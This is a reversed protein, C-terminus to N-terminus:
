PASAPILKVEVTQSSGEAVHVLKGQQEYESLVAPDFYSFPEIDEWAFLRYDGPTVGRFTFRGEQDTVARRYLDQRNRLKDPVLVAQVGSAARLAADSVIGTIQGPNTALTVELLGRFDDSITLGNQLVDTQNLRAEKIYFGVGLGNVALRYDGPTIRPISFSGDAAARVGGGQLMTLISPAGSTPQLSLTFASINQNAGAGEIRLQGPIAVGSSVTLTLNNIDSGLVDIPIRATNINSLVALAEAPTPNTAQPPGPAPTNSGQAIVQLWYSGPTVNQLVFEGTDGDYRTNGPDMGILADLLSSSTSDRPSVSVTANRPPQGTQADIVRGTLRVRATRALTFDIAPIERGPQLDIALARSPDATGPYYTLTFGPDVVENPNAGPGFIAAAQAAPQAQQPNQAQAAAQSAQSTIIDLASRASNASVLYRGPNIWYLRYEGLDNTRASAAPQLTRRGSADYTSRLAQVTVGTLPDGNTDLVRGSVTAAPTLRFVVDTLQQGTAVNMVTGPRNVSRQGYEQRSFGNRAAFLRYTGAEVDTFQFKGQDDTTATTSQLQQQLQAQAQPGQPGGGRPGANPGRVRTLTLTARVVPEGTTARVVSGSITSKMEPLGQPVQAFLASTLLLAPLLLSLVRLKRM